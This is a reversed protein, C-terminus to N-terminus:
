GKLSDIYASLADALDGRGDAEARRLMGAATEPRMLRHKIALRLLAESRWARKEWLGYSKRLFEVYDPLWPEIEPVGAELAFLCGEVVRQAYRKPLRGVPGLYVPRGLVPMFEANGTAVFPDDRNWAATMSFHTVGDHVFVLKVPVGDFAHDCVQTVPRPVDYRACSRGPPYAILRRGDRSLVVGDVVRYRASDPHITYERLNRCGSFAQFCAPNDPVTASTLGTCDCFADPGLETVGRPLTARTLHACGYFAGEGIATVGEPIAADTLTACHAFARKGIRTVTAPLAITRLNWCCHFAEDGVETLGSPLAVEALRGCNKFLWSGIRTVRCPIAARELRECDCFARDGIRTLSDPLAVARLARCGRFAESGIEEVGADVAASELRECCWFAKDGVRKVSGPIQVRAMQTCFAFASVGIRKVGGHITVGTLRRCDYFARDGIATVGQPIVVDGGPGRYVKLTGNEIVFDGDAM